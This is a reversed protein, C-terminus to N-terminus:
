NENKFKNKLEIFIKSIPSSNIIKTDPIDKLIKYLNRKTIKTLDTNKNKILFNPKEIKIIPIINPNLQIHKTIKTNINNTKDLINYKKLNIIHYRIKQTLHKEKLFLKEKNETIQKKISNITKNGGYISKLIYYEKISLTNEYLADKNNKLFFDLIELIKNIIKYENTNKKYKQKKIFLYFKQIIEEDTDTINESIYNNIEKNNIIQIQNNDIENNNENLPIINQLKKYNKKNKLILFRIVITGLYSYAKFGKDPNFLNMKEIVHCLCDHQLDEFTDGDRYDFKYTNIINEILKLLPINLHNNYIKNKQYQDKENIYQILYDETEKTFYNKDMIDKKIKLNILM